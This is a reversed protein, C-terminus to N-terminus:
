RGRLLAEWAQWPMPTPTPLALPTSTPTPRSLRFPTERPRVMGAEVRAWRAVFEDSRVYRAEEALRTAQAQLTAIARQLREAQEVRRRYRELNEWAHDALFALALLVAVRVLWRGGVTWGCAV